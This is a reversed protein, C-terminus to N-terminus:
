PSLFIDREIRWHGCLLDLVDSYPHPTPPSRTSHDFTPPAWLETDAVASKATSHGNTTAPAPQNKGGDPSEGNVTPKEQAESPNLPTVSVSQCENDEHTQCPEEAQQPFLSQNQSRHSSMRLMGDANVSKNRTSTTVGQKKRCKDQRDRCKMYCLLRPLM